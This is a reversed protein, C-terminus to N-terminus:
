RSGGSLGHFRFGFEAKEYVMPDLRERVEEALSIIGRLCAPVRITEGGTGRVVFWGM